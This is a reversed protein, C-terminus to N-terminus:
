GARRGAPSPCSSSRRRLERQVQALLAALGAEDGGVQLAGGRDVLELLEALLDLDGDVAGVGLVRDLRRAAPELARAVLAEVRHDDVGGAAQLDVLLQHVLERADAVLRLRRVDQEDSSAIVPWSATLTACANSSRMANSPTM